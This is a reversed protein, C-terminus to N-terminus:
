MCPRPFMSIKHLLSSKRSSSISGSCRVLPSDLTKEDEQCLRIHQTVTKETSLSAIPSVLTHAVQSSNFSSWKQIWWLLAGYATCGKNQVVGLSVSISLKGLPASPTLGSELQNQPFRLPSLRGAMEETCKLPCAPRKVQTTLSLSIHDSQVECKHITKQKTWNKWGM